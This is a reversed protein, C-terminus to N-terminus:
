EPRPDGGASGVTQSPQMSRDRNDAGIELSSAYFHPAEFDLFQVSSASWYECGGRPLLPTWRRLPKKSGWTRLLRLTPADSM